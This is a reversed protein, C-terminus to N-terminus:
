RILNRIVVSTQFEIASSSAKLDVFNSATKSTLSFDIGVIPYDSVSDQGCTFKCSAVTVASTDVLAASNSTISPNNLADHCSYTATSGDVFALQLSSSVAPSVVTGCPSPALIATANRISKAMQVIAYDGSTQVLNIANTKNNGRLTAIVISIVIAGVSVFVFIVVLLEVLTFGSSTSWQRNVISSKAQSTIKKEITFIFLSYYRTFIKRM